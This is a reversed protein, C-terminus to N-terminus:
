FEFDVFRGHAYDELSDHLVRRAEPNLDTLMADEQVEENNDSNKYTKNDM